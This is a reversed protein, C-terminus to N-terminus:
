EKPTHTDGVCFEGNGGGFGAAGASLVDIFDRGGGFEAPVKPTRRCETISILVAENAVTWQGGAEGGGSIDEDLDFLLARQWVIHPEGALNQITQDFIGEARTGNAEGGNRCVDGVTEGSCSSALFFM